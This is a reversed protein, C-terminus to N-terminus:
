LIVTSSGLCRRAETRGTGGEKDKGEADKPSGKGDESGSKEKKAIPKSTKRRKLDTEELLGPDM